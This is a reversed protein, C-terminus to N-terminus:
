VNPGKRKTLGRSEPCSTAQPVIVEASKEAIGTYAASVERPLCKRKGGIGATDVGVDQQQPSRL